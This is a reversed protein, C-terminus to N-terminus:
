KQHKGCDKNYMEYCCARSKRTPRPRLCHSTTNTSVCAELSRFITIGVCLKWWLEISNTARRREERKMPSTSPIFSCLLRGKCIPMTKWTESQTQRLERRQQRSDFYKLHECRTKGTWWAPNRPIEKSMPKFATYIPMLSSARRNRWFPEENHGVFSDDVTHQYYIRSKLNRLWM